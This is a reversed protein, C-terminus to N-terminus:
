TTMFNAAVVGLHRPCGRVGSGSVPFYECYELSLFITFQDPQRSHVALGLELPSIM